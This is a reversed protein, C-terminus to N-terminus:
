KRRGAITWTPKENAVKNFEGLVAKKHFVSSEALVIMAESLIKAIRPIYELGELRKQARRRKAERSKPDLRAM